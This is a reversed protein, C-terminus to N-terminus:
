KSPAGAPAVFGSEGPGPIMPSAGFLVSQPRRNFNEMTRDLTRLSSRADSTLANFRPLTDYEVSGAISGLREAADSMRAIPGDQAQLGTTLANLNSSLRSVDQSLATISALARESSATLAPLKALTPQMQRPIAEFAIAARSINDFAGLMAKQNEPAMLANVRKTLQEAEALIAMGKTQLADFVSPRLPIRAMRESSSSMRVPQKGDDDLQVYAIGTVGQYGLMAFTSRTIPTDPNISIHVLIQGPVQPDFIIEDVKGVNLGRYRVAAQPNLGPVSLTTAIEYPVRVVRDRNFWMSLLIAAAVLVITFLGAILAHSKNEM